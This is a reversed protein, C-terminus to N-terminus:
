APRALLQHCLTRGLWAEYEDATWGSIVVLEDYVEYTMLAQVIELARAPELGPALHARLPEVIRFLGEGRERHHQAVSAAVESDAGAAAHEVAFVDGGTKYLERNLHAMREIRRVPEHEDLAAQFNELVHAEQVAKWRIEVLITRKNTLVAYVTSLGVSAETAIQEITTAAYGQRRFLGRAADLIANRTLATQRQRLSGKVKASAQAM